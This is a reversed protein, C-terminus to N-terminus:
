AGTVTDSTEPSMDDTGSDDGAIDSGSSGSDSASDDGQTADSQVGGTGWQSGSDTVGSADDPDSAPFDGTGGQNLDQDTM